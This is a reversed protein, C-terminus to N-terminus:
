FIINTPPTINKIFEETVGFVLYDNNSYINRYEMGLIVNIRGNALEKAKKYSSIFFECIKDWSLDTVDEFTVPSFHDTIVLTNYGLNIYDEVIDEIPYHGCKSVLNTHCHLETKYNM